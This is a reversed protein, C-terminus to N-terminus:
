NEELPLSDASYFANMSRPCAQELVVIDNNVQAGNAMPGEEAQDLPISINTTDAYTMLDNSFRSADSELVSSPHAVPGGFLVNAAILVELEGPNAGDLIDAKGGHNEMYALAGIVQEVTFTEGGQDNGVLTGCDFATDSTPDANPDTNWAPNGSSQFGPTSAAASATSTAASNGASPSNHTAALSIAVIIVILTGLGILM